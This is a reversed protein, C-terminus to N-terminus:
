FSFFSSLDCFFTSDGLIGLVELCGEIERWFPTLEAEYVVVYITIWVCGLM